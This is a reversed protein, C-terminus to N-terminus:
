CFHRGFGNLFGAINMVKRGPLQLETLNLFGDNAAIKLYTKGDTIFDGPPIQKNTIEPSGNFIKLLYIIGEKDTLETCAGPHPSMGRILNYINMVSDNWKISCHEKHIKPAKNLFIEASTLNEQSIVRISRNAISDITKVVLDAGIIMLRDHLAGANENGKIQTKESFIIKGTDMSEEIFFTTVGTETEGNIIVWNIPAAGRYQPLLSAHLNFTGLLPLAWVERPLMRFAVVVQIDPHLDNLEQHFIPNRLNEPQMVHLRNTLAYQKVPSCKLHMGRGAPKDPATVVGVINYESTILAALSAVAFDPTGFFVIRPFKKM